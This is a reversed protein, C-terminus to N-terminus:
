VPIRHVHVDHAAHKKLIKTAKEIMEPSRLNVWLLIGGLDIQEQIFDAHHKAIMHAFITGIGAGAVGAATAALTTALVTGGSAVTVATATTAALYLPLGIVTAEAEGLTENPIFITRPADESDEADRVKQYRHGLKEAVTKEDALISLGQRMFGNSQLEDIAAQLDDTSHFVAVAEDVMKKNQTQQPNNSM